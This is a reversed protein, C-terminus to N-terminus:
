LQLLLWAVPAVVIPSDLVDLVGGFGPISNGSDKLGADRKLLSATLDGLQGIGGLLMGALGILIPSYGALQPENLSIFFGLAVIGSLVMGGVLGEWTKGPSLWLILKHKGIARGTFYAGIDCSKTTMIIGLILWASADQRILLFFGPLIGLYAFAFLSSGVCSMAGQPDANRTHWLLCAAFVVFVAFMVTAPPTIPVLYSVALGILGAYALLWTASTLGKAQFLRNLEYAALSVLLSFLILLGLGSPLNSPSLPGTIKWTDLQQDVWLLGLLAAIMIPGFILRYKLM